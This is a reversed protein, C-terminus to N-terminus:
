GKSVWWKQYETLKTQVLEKSRRKGILLKLLIM